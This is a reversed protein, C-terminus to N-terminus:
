AATPRLAVRVPSASRTAKPSGARWRWPRAPASCERLRRACGRRARRGRHEGALEDRSRVRGMAFLDLAALELASGPIRARACAACPSRTARASSGSRTPATSTSACCRTVEGCYEDLHEPATSAEIM